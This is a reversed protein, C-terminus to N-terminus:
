SQKKRGLLEETIRRCALELQVFTKEFAPMDHYWPDDVPLNKGPYILNLVYDVKLMDDASRAMASVQRYHSVDMVYIRDFRDFDKKDFLRAIHSSIDIGHRRCVTQARQDPSDGKHFSEFGCSDAECLLGAQGTMHKLIGEAM